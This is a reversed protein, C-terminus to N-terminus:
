AERLEHIEPDVKGLALMGDIYDHTIVPSGDSWLAGERLHITYVLGDLSVEFNTAGAPELFGGPTIRFFSEYLQNIVLNSPRDSGIEIPNLTAPEHDLPIRLQQLGYEVLGQAVVEVPGSYISIFVVMLAVIVGLRRARRMSDM